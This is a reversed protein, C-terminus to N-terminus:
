VLEKRYAAEVRQNRFHLGPLRIGVAALLGTGFVSWLIAATFLPSPIDGVIPLTSVHQSLTLLIPLFAILTMVADVISVGLDETIEAFKMTDEQVRQSAGEIGRVEDWQSMYFDNMATRWRFVYHSVFFRTLVFVIVWVMAIEFFVGILGYLDGASVDGEGSLAFQVQDFFPRRWNNIAVSVQVSYYTSFLILATGLISWLQWKHPAYTFWFGAFALTALGTYIYFFLFEDTAFHGLGIVPNNDDVVGGLGVLGRLDEAALSWLLGVIVAYVVASLFFLKPRPFFSEFM